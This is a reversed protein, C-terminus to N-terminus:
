GRRRGGRDAAGSRLDGRAHDADRPTVGTLVTPAYFAGHQLGAPAQVPGGCLLTAGAAVADDVLERVLEFQERSVM